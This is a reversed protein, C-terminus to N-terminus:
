FKGEGHEITFVFESGPILQCKAAMDLARLSRSAYIVEYIDIETKSDQKPMQINDWQLHYKGEGIHRAEIKGQNGPLYQQSIKKTLPMFYISLKYAAELGKSKGEVLPSFMVLGKTTTVKLYIVGTEVKVLTYGNGLFNVSNLLFKNVM